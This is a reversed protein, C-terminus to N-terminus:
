ENKFLKLIKWKVVYKGAMKHAKDSKAPPNRDFGGQNKQFKTKRNM